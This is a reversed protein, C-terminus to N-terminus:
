GDNESGTILTQFGRGLLGIPTQGYAYGAEPVRLTQQFSWEYIALTGICFLQFCLIYVGTSLMM